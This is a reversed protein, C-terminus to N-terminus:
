KTLGRLMSLAISTWIPASPRNRTVYTAEIKAM